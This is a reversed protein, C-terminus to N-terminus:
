GDSERSDDKKSSQHRFPLRQHQEIVVTGGVAVHTNLLSKGMVDLFPLFVCMQIDKDTLGCTGVVVLSANDVINRHTLMVGKPGGTSGSTYIISALDPLSSPM